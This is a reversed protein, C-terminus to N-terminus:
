YIALAGETREGGETELSMFPGSNANGLLKLNISTSVKDPNPM